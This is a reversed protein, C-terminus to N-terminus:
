RVKLELFEGSEMTVLLNPGSVRVRKVTGKLEGKPPASPDAGGVPDLLLFKSDSADGKTKCRHLLSQYMSVYMYVYM